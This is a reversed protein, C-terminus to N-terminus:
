DRVPPVYISVAELDYLDLEGITGRRIAVAAVGTPTESLTVQYGERDALAVVAEVLQRAGMRPFEQVTEQTRWALAGPALCPRIVSHIIRLM